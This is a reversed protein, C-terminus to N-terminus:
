QPKSLAKRAAVWARWSTILLALLAVLALGYAALVYDNQPNQLWDLM